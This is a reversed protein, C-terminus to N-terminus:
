RDSHAANSLKKAALAEYADYVGKFKAEAMTKSADDHRDPHWKMAQTRLAVKLEDWTIFDRDGIGLAACHPCRSSAFFGADAARRPASSMSSSWAAGGDNNVREFDDLFLKRFAARAAPDDMGGAFGRPGARSWFAAAFRADADADAKMRGRQASAASWARKADGGDGRQRGGGRRMADRSADADRIDFGDLFAHGFAGARGGGRRRGGGGDGDCAEEGGEARRVADRVDRKARARRARMARRREADEVLRSSASASFSQRSSGRSDWATSSMRMERGMVADLRVAPSARADRMMARTMARRRRADVVGRARESSADMGRARTRM